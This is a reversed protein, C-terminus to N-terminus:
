FPLLSRLSIIPLRSMTCAKSFYDVFHELEDRPIDDLRLESVALTNPTLPLVDGNLYESSLIVNDGLYFDVLEEQESPHLYCPARGIWDQYGDQHMMAFADRFIVAAQRCHISDGYLDALVKSAKVSKWALSDNMQSRYPPYLNAQVGCQLCFDKVIDQDPFRFRDYIKANISEGGLSDRYPALAQSYFMAHHVIDGGLFDTTGWRAANSRVALEKCQQAYLSVWLDRQHRLYAVISIDSFITQLRNIIHKVHSAQLPWFHESSLIVTHLNHLSIYSQLKSICDDFGLTDGEKVSQILFTHNQRDGKFLPYGVGHSCLADRNSRM